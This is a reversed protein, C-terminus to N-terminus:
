ASDSEMLLHTIREHMYPIAEQLPMYLTFGAAAKHGGGNLECALASVDTDDKARLSGKISGDQERLMCAVRVGSLSRLVNILNDTDSKSANCAQMDAKSVFSIIGCGESFVQMHELAIKELCLSALSQNQFVHTAVSGPNVGHAVLEAATNFADATANQYRFGGTDTVLGTYACLASEYLPEACLIKIFKWIIMSASPSDPDIYSYQAIRKQCRHHDLIFTTQAKDFYPVGQGFRSEESVDVAIFTAYARDADPKLIIEDAGPLFSLAYPIPEESASLCVVNKGITRLAAYLALQSGLCDGDPSVHGCIVIDDCNLLHEAIEQLSTNDDKSFVM